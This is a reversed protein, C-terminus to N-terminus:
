RCICQKCGNKCKQNNYAYPTTPSLYSDSPCDCGPAQVVAYGECSTLCNVGTSGDGSPVLAPLIDAIVHYAVMLALIAMIGIVIARWWNEVPPLQNPQTIGSLASM